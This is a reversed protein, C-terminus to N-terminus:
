GLESANSFSRKLTKSSEAFNWIITLLRTIDRLIENANNVDSHEFVLIPTAHNPLWFEVFIRNSKAVVHLDLVNNGSKLRITYRSGGPFSIKEILYADYTTLLLDVVLGAILGLESM